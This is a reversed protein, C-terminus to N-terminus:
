EGDAARWLKKGKFVEVLPVLAVVDFAGVPAAWGDHVVICWCTGGSRLSERKLMIRHVVWADTGGAVMNIYVNGQHTAADQQPELAAHSTSSAAREGSAAEAGCREM